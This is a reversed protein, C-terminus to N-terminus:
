KLGMCSVGNVALAATWTPKDGDMIVKGGFSEEMLGDISPRM